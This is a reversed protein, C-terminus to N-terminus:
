GSILMSGIISASGFMIGGILVHSCERLPVKEFWMRYGVVMIAITILGAGAIQMWMQLTSLQNQGPTAFASQSIISILFLAFTSKWNKPPYKNSNPKKM